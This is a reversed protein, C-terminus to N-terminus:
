CHRLVFEVMFMFDLWLVLNRDILDQYMSWITLVVCSVLSREFLLLQLNDKKFLDGLGRM